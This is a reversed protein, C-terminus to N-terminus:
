VTGVCYLTNKVRENNQPNLFPSVSRDEKPTIIFKEM